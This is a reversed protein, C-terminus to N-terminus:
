ANGNSRKCEEWHNKFIVIGIASFVSFIFGVLILKLRDPKVKGVLYPKTIILMSDTNKISDQKSSYLSYLMLYRKVWKRVVELAKDKDKDEYVFSLIGCNKELEVKLDIKPETKDPMNGYISKILTRAIEQSSALVRQETIAYQNYSKAKYLMVCRAQYINPKLLIHISFPIFIILFVGISLKLYKKFMIMYDFLTLEKEEFSM